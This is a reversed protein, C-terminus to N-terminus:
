SFIILEQAYPDGLCVDLSATFRSIVPGSERFYFVTTSIKRSSFGSWYPVRAYPLSFSQRM